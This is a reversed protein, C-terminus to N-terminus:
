SPWNLSHWPDTILCATPDPFYVPVPSRVLHPPLAPLGQRLWSDEIYISHAPSQYPWSQTYLHAANPFYFTFLNAVNLLLGLAFHMSQCFCRDSFKLSCDKLINYTM